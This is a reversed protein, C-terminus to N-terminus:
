HPHRAESYPNAWALALAHGVSKLYLRAGGSDAARDVISDGANGDLGQDDGDGHDSSSSGATSGAYPSLWGPGQQELEVEVEVEDLLRGKTDVALIRLQQRSQV